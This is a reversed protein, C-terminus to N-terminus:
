GAPFGTGGRGARPHGNVGCLSGPAGDTGRKRRSPHSGGHCLGVNGGGLHTLLFRAVWMGGMVQSAARNAEGAYFLQLGEHLGERGFRVIEPRLDQNSDLGMTKLWIHQYPRGFYISRM